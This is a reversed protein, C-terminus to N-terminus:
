EWTRESLKAAVDSAGDFEGLVHRLNIFRAGQIGGASTKRYNTRIPKGCFFRHGTSIKYGCHNEADKIIGIISSDYTTTDCGQIVTKTLKEGDYAVDFVCEVQWIAQVTKAKYIGVFEHKTYGRDSPHFYIGHRLNIEISEGCPVVRLLYKSQDFLGVDNCYQKYDDVLSEMEYEYPKFLDRLLECIGEYTVNRFIVNPHTEALRSRIQEEDEGIPQKTLLLLIQKEEKGFSAAHAVLQDVQVRANLKAEILLKFSKQVISGDPVSGEGRQQQTIDIGIELDEDLDLM